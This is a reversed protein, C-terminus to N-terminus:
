EISDGTRHSAFELNLGSHNGPFFGYLLKWSGAELERSKSRCGAFQCALLQFSSAPLQSSM